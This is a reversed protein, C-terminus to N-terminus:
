NEEGREGLYMAGLMGALLIFTIIEFPLIYQDFLFYTVSQPSMSGAGIVSTNPLSKPQVFTLMLIFLIVGLIIAAKSKM